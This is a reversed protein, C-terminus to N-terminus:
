LRNCGGSLPMQLAAKFLGSNAIRYENKSINKM